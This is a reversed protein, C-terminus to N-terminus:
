GQPRGADLRCSGGDPSTVAVTSPVELSVQIREGPSHSGVGHIDPQGAALTIPLGQNTMAKESAKMPRTIWSKPYRVLQSGYRKQAAHAPPPLARVSAQAPQFPVYFHPAADYRGIATCPTLLALTALAFHRPALM